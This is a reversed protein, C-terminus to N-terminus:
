PSTCGFDGLVIGLDTINVFGDGSVDGGTGPPVSAGFNALLVGVDTINVIGDGNTDGVCTQGAECDDATGSGDGDTCDTGGGAWASNPIVGCDAETLL